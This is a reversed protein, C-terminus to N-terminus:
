LGKVLREVETLVLMALDIGPRTGSRELLEVREKAIELAAVGHRDVLEQAALEIRGTHPGESHNVRHKLKQSPKFVVVRRASISAEEGTKPNRGMRAGKHRVSFSGFNAIKIPTGEALRDTIIDLVDDLLGACENRSLGMEKNLADVLTTRTVTANAMSLGGWDWVM